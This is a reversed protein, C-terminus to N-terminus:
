KSRGKIRKIVSSTSFGKLYSTCAFRVKLDDAIHEETSFAYEYDGGKVHVAPMVMEILRNPTLDPFITVADVSELGALQLARVREPCIPRDPGKLKQVIADCNVGVLLIDGMARAESLCQVHGLHLLDFCGNTTVIQKGAARQERAWYAISSWPIVKDALRKSV